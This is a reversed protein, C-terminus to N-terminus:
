LFNIEPYYCSLGCATKWRNPISIRHLFDDRNIANKAVSINEKVYLIDKRVEETRDARGVIKFSKIGNTEFDYIACLGCANAMFCENYLSIKKRMNKVIDNSLETYLDYDSKRLFSCIGGYYEKHVCLCNSDSFMCGDRMGFVEFEVDPFEKVFSVIERINLERPLIMRRVGLSYYFRAIDVNYIATMTSAVPDYGNEILLKILRIDSFIVGDANGFANNIIYDKICYIQERSYSNANLTIYCRKNKDHIYNVVSCIDGIDFKNAKNGMSTMRNIDTGYKEQWFKDYFGFYFEDAGAEVYTDIQNFSRLPVLINM